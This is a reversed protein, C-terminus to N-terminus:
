GVALRRQNAPLRSSASQQPGLTWATSVKKHKGGMFSLGTLCGHQLWTGCPALSGIWPAKLISCHIRRGCPASSPQGPSDQLGWTKEGQVLSQGRFRLRCLCQQWLIPKGGCAKAICVQACSVGGGGGEQAGVGVRMGDGRAM